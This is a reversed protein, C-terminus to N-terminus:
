CWGADRMRPTAPLQSVTARWNSSKRSSARSRVIRVLEAKAFQSPHDMDDGARHASITERDDSPSAICAGHLTKLREADAISVSLGRATGVFFAEHGRSRLEKAVAILPIVHGGTGGGAMLFLLSDPM